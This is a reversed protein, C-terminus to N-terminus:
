SRGVMIASMHLSRLRRGTYLLCPLEMRMLPRGFPGALSWPELDSVDSKRTLVTPRVLHVPIKATSREGNM